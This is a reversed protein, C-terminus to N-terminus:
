IPLFNFINNLGLGNKATAVTLMSIATWMALRLGFYTVAAVVIGHVIKGITLFSYGFNEIIHEEAFTITFGYMAPWVWLTLYMAVSFSLGNLLQDKKTPTPNPHYPSKQDYASM